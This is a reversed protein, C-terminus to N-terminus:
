LLKEQRMLLRQYVVRRKTATPGVPVRRRIVEGREVYARVRERAQGKPWGMQYAFHALTMPESWM